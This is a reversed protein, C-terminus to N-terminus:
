DSGEQPGDFCSRYAAEESRKLQGAIYLNTAVVPGYLEAAQDYTLPDPHDSTLTTAPQDQVGLEDFLAAGLVAYNAIDMLRERVPQSQPAEPNSAAKSVARFQKWIHVCLAVRPDVSPTDKLNALQDRDSAYDRSKSALVEVQEAQFAKLYTAFERQDM